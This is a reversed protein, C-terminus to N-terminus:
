ASAHGCGACLGRGGTAQFANHFVFAGGESRQEHDIQAGDLYAFAVADIYIDFGACRLVRDYALQRDTFTISYSMGRCGAGRVLVRIGLVDPDQCAAFIRELEAQAPGSLTIRRADLEATFQPEVLSSRSWKSIKRVLVAIPACGIPHSKKGPRAPHLVKM